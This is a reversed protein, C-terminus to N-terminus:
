ISQKVPFSILLNQFLKLILTCSTKYYQDM